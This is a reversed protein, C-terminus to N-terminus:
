IWETGLHFTLPSITQLKSIILSNLLLGYSKMLIIKYGSIRGSKDILKLVAPISREPSTLYLVIDDAYLSIRNETKSIDIGFTEKDTRIVEAFPEIVLNFLFPPLPCGTWM